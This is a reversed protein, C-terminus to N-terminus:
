EEGTGIPLVVLGIDEIGINPTVAGKYTVTIKVAKLRSKGQASGKIPDNSLGAISDDRLDYFNFSTDETGVLMQHERPEGGRRTEGAVVVTSVNPFINYVEVMRTFGFYNPYGAGQYPRGDYTEMPSGDKCRGDSLQPDVCTCDQGRCWGDYDDVDDFKTWRTDGTGFTGEELGFPLATTGKPFYLTDSSLAPPDPETFEKARIEEQLDRALNIAITRKNSHETMKLAHVFISLLPVLAIALIAVAVLLEILSVGHQKRLRQM